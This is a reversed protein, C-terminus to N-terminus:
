IRLWLVIVWIGGDWKKFLFKLIIRGDVGQDEWHDGKKLNGWWFGTHLERRGVHWTDRGDWDEQNWWRFLLITLLICIMCSRTICYERSGRWRTWRLGLYKGWCGIWSCELGVPRGGRWLGLIVSMYFVLLIVTRFAKIKMNKSAGFTNHSLDLVIFLRPLTYCAHFLHPICM